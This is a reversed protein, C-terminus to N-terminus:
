KGISAQLRKRSPKQPLKRPNGWYGAKGSGEKDEKEGGAFLIAQWEPMRLAEKKPARRKDEELSSVLMGQKAQMSDADLFPLGRILSERADAKVSSFQDYWLTTNRIM